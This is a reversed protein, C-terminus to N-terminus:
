IYKQNHLKREIIDRLTHESMRTIPMSFDDDDFLLAITFLNVEKEKLLDNNEFRYKFDHDLIAQGLEHACLLLKSSENYRINAMILRCNKLAKRYADAKLFDIDSQLTDIEYNLNEVIKAADRTHYKERLTWAAKKICAERQPDSINYDIIYRLTYGSMETIPIDFDDDDFLLAVAFLNVEREKVLDSDEFYRKFDHGLVAHGLEHACLVIRSSENYSENITISCYNKRTYRFTNAKLLNIDSELFLVKHGLKEAIEIANRTHYKERLSRAIKKIEEEKEFVM